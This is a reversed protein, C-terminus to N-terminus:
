QPGPTAKSNALEFPFAAGFVIEGHATTGHESRARPGAYLRADIRLSWPVVLDYLAGLDYKAGIGIHALLDADTGLVAHKSVVGMVGLGGGVLPTLGFALPYHVLVQGRFAMLTARRADASTYTPVISGELEVSTLPIPSYGARIGMELGANSLEVPSSTDPDFFEHVDSPLFLGAFAGVEFRHQLALLGAPESAVRIHPRGDGHAPDQGIAAIVAWAALGICPNARM